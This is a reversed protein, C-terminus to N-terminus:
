DAILRLFGLVSLGLKLATGPTPAELNEAGETDVEVNSNYYIWGGLIGIAAGVLGGLLLAKTRANDM